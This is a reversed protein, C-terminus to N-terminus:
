RTLNSTEHKLDKNIKRALSLHEAVVKSTNDAFKKLDPDSGNKAENQFEALDKEHDKVMDQIYGADTKFKGSPEEKPLTIGKKAAISKLEDNAKSHDRVMRAGFQKVESNNAKASAEKGMAVEMMGGKAANEAFKKDVSSVSSKETKAAKEKKTESTKTESSKTEEQAPSAKEDQARVPGYVCFAVAVILATITLKHKM